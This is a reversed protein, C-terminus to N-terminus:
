ARDFRALTEVHETNPFLSWAELAALRARNAGV